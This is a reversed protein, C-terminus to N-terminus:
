GSFTKQEGPYIIGKGEAQEKRRRGRGGDETEEDRIGHGRGRQLLYIEKTSIQDQPTKLWSWPEKEVCM